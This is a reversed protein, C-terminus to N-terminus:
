LEVKNPGIKTDKELNEDLGDSISQWLGADLLEIFQGVAESLDPNIEAAKLASKKANVIDGLEGYIAALQQWHNVNEPELSVLWEYYIALEEFRNGGSLLSLVRGRDESSLMIRNDEDMVELLVGRVALWNDSRAHVLMINFYSTGVKPSLRKSKELEQLAESYMKYNLYIQATEYYQHARGPSLYELPKALDLIINLDTDIFGSSVNYLALSFLINRANHPDSQRLNDVVERAQPFIFHGAEENSRLEGRSELVKDIYQQRIENTQYTGLVMAKEFIKVSEGFRGGTFSRISDAGFLNAKAPKLNYSYAVFALLLVGVIGVSWQMALSVSKIGGLEKASGSQGKFSIYALLSILILHTSLTDFVFLNQIFYGIFLVILLWNSRDDKTQRLLEIVVVYLLALYAILGLSGFMVLQDFIINHARDFWIQSGNDLYIATPFYKDFAYNYNEYGWGLLPRDQFAQWSASWTELRSQTTVDTLSINALRRMTSSKQIFSTKGLALFGVVFVILVVLGGISLVKGRPSLEGIKFLKGLALAFLAVVFGLVAGRTQTQFIIFIQLLSSIFILYRVMKHKYITILYFGLFVHVLLYSALFAPNGITGSLRIGTTNIFTELGFYQGLSYFAVLTSVGFFVALISHWIKKTRVLGILIIFLFYLHVLTIFGEGREMTGLLSKMPNVAFLSSIFVVGVYATIMWFIKTLRPRVDPVRLALLVYALVAIEVLIRFIFVKSSIFPFMYEKNILLPVILIFTVAIYIIRSLWINLHNIKNM